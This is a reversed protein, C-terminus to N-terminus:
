GLLATFDHYGAWAQRQWDVPQPHFCGSAAGVADVGVLRMRRVQDHLLHRRIQPRVAPIADTKPIRVPSVTGRRLRYFLIANDEHLVGSKRRNCDHHTPVLNPLSNLDYDPPMALRRLTASLLQPDIGEPIIHDIELNRFEVPESCFFCKRDNARWVAVRIKINFRAISM